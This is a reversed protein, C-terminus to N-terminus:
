AARRSGKRRRYWLIGLLIVIWVPSFIGVWILVNFLAQGFVVLGNWATGAINGPNWGAEVGVYRTRTEAGTNGRDDTVTLSVTYDGASTYAHSPSVENSTNGDGFDWQYSYPPFGGSVQATFRINDGTKVRSKDATLAVDLRGQELKVDILSTASTRELYLM